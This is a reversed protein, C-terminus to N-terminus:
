SIKDLSVEIVATIPFSSTTKVPIYNYGYTTVDITVRLKQQDSIFVSGHTM